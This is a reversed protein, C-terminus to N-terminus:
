FFLQPPHDSVEIFNDVLLDDYVPQKTAATLVPSNLIYFSIATHYESGSYCKKISNGNSNEAPFDNLQKAYGSRADDLRTKRENYICLLYITDKVFKTKVYQYHVGNLEVQGNVREYEPREAAYPLHLPIKIEILEETRYQKNNLRDILALDSKQIIYSFLLTYGATNFLHISLM